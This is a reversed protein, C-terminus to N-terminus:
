RDSIAESMQIAKNIHGCAYNWVDETKSYECCIHKSLMGELDADVPLSSASMFHMLLWVEFRPNSIILGIGKEEAIAVANRLDEESNSDVDFVCFVIDGQSVDVDKERMKQVCNGVMKSPNKNESECIIVEVNSNREKLHKLYLAETKGEVVILALNLPELEARSKRSM